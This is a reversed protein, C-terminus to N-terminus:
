EGAQVRASTQPAGDQVIWTRVIEVEEPTWFGLRSLPLGRAQIYAIEPSGGRPQPRNPNNVNLITAHRGTWRPNLLESNADGPTVYALTAEYSDLLQTRQRGAPQHCGVCSAELLPKIDKEYTFEPETRFPLRIAQELPLGEQPSVTLTYDTSFNLPDRSKLLLENGQVDFIVPAPPDLDAVLRRLNTDLPQNFQLRIVGDVYVDRQEPTPQSSVWQLPSENQSWVPSFSKIGVFVVGLLLLGVWTRWRRWHRSLNQFTRNSM